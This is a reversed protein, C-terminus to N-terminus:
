IGTISNLGDILYGLVRRRGESAPTIFQVAYGDRHRVARFDFDGLLRAERRASYARGAEEAEVRTEWHDARHIETTTTM